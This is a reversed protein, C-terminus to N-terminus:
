AGVRLIFTALCHFYMRVLHSQVSSNFLIGPREFVMFHRNFAPGKLKLFLARAHKSGTSRAPHVLTNIHLFIAWSPPHGVMSFLSVRGELRALTKNTMYVTRWTKYPFIHFTSEGLTARTPYHGKQKHCIKEM